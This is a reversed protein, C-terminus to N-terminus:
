SAPEKLQMQFLQVQRYSDKLLARGKPGTAKNYAQALTSAYSNLQAELVDTYTQSYTAAQQASKLQADTTASVKLNLEKANIKKKNTTLYQITQAQSSSLSVEMTSSLNQINLPLNAQQNDSSAIVHLLEQQEQVVAVFPTFDPSSSLLGKFIMFLVFLVLLGGAMIGIRVPLAANNLLKSVPSQARPLKPNTIFQYPQDAPAPQQAQGDYSAQPMGAASNTGSPAATQASLAQLDPSVVPAHPTASTSDPPAPPTVAGRRALSPEVVRQQMYAGAYQKMHEPLANELHRTMEEQAHEPIYTNGGRYKELHAPMSQQVHEAMASEFHPPIYKQRDPIPQGPKSSGFM